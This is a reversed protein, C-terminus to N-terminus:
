YGQRDRRIAHRAPADGCSHATARISSKTSQRGFSGGNRPVPSQRRSSRRAAVGGAKVILAGDRYQALDLAPKKISASVQALTLAAVPDYYIVTHNQTDTTLQGHAFSSKLIVQGTFSGLIPERGSSPNGAEGAGMWPMDYWGNAAPDWQAPTEVMARLSGAVYAKLRTMYAAANEQTIRGKPHEDLWSHDPMTKPYDHSLTRLRYPGDFPQPSADAPISLGNNSAFPDGAKQALAPGQSLSFLLVWVASHALGHRLPTIMLRGRYASSM